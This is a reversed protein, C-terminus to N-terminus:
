FKEKWPENESGVIIELDNLSSEQTLTKKLCNLVEESDNFDM